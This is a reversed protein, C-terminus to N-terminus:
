FILQATGCLSAARVRLCQSKSLVASPSNHPAGASWDSEWPQSNSIESFGTFYGEAGRTKGGECHVANEAKNEEKRLM